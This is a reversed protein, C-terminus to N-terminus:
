RAASPARVLPVAAPMRQIALVATDDAQEGAEFASLAADIAGVAREATRCGRLAEELREDGFRHDTGQADLVGDTYLVVLDGPGIAVTTATWREGPFAGLLAGWRGLAQVRGDCVLLPRPHGACVVDVEAGGPTERLVLCAVTCLAM